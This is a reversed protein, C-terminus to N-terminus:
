CIVKLCLEIRPNTKDPKERKIWLEEVQKDDVWVGALTLADFVAKPYNDLDRKRRDKPFVRMSVSVPESLGPAVQGLLEVMTKKYAKGEPSIVTHGRFHRYYRNNSPPIPISAEFTTM